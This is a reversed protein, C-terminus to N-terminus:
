THDTEGENWWPLPRSASSLLVHAFMLVDGPEIRSEDTLPGATLKNRFMTLSLKSQSKIYKKGGALSFERNEVFEQPVTKPNSAQNTMV